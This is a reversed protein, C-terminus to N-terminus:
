LLSFDRFSRVTSNQHETDSHTMCYRETIDTYRRHNLIEMQIELKSSLLMSRGRRMIGDVLAGPPWEGGGGSNFPHRVGRARPRAGSVATPSARPHFPTARPKPPPPSRLPWVGAAFSARPAHPRTPSQAHPQGPPASSSRGRHAAVRPHAAPKTCVLSDPARPRPLHCLRCVACGCAPLCSRAARAVPRLHSDSRSPNYYRKIMIIVYPPTCACLVATEGTM